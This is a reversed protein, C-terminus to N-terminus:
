RFKNATVLIMLLWLFHFLEMSPHTNVTLSSEKHSALHFSHSAYPWPKGSQSLLSDVPGLRDGLKFKLDTCKRIKLLNLRGEFYFILLNSAQTRKWESYYQVPYTLLHLVTGKLQAPISSLKDLDPSYCFLFPPSPVPCSSFLSFFFFFFWPTGM